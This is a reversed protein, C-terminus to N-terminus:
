ALYRIKNLKCFHYWNAKCRNANLRNRQINNIIATSDLRTSDFAFMFSITVMLQVHWCNRVSCLTLSISEFHSVFVVVSYQVTSHPLEVIYQAFEIAHFVWYIVLLAFSHSNKLSKARGENTRTLNPIWCRICNFESSRLNNGHWIDHIWFIHLLLCSFSGSERVFMACCM